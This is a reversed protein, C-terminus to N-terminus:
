VDLAVPGQPVSVCLQVSEEGPGSVKGTLRNVVTGSTKRCSCQHCIGMRCGHQPKLGAAEAIELLNADGESGVKLNSSSFTVEGGLQDNDLNAQAPPAFFTSHIQTDKLGRQRLLDNALDMLGKPGCLYVERAKLGPVTALDNDNLYRPEKGEHTTIIKLSLASYRAALATLKEGAIVDSQTRVFYLLTVPARYNQDAMTELQSLIPTIGSGGAVFLVPKAPTPILFEGFAATLGVVDGDKLSDHLWNTVLGGPLRKITLTIRGESEWLLPSSSLSFTRTRRIGDIDACINVHQGAKFGTWRKAPKLVFTKTDSTEATIREVMAPTYEQVWMPNIAEALPDFYAAPNDRNLLQRGLWHLAKTHTIRALM